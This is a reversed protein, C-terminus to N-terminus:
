SAAAARARRAVAGLGAGRTGATSMGDRLCAAIDMGPGRDWVAIVVGRREGDRAHGLVAGGRQAHRLVNSALETAILAAEGARVEDLGAAAALVASRRRVAGVDAADDLDFPECAGIVEM